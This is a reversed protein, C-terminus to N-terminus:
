FGLKALVRAVLGPSPRPMAHAPATEFDDHFVADPTLEFDFSDSAADAGTVQDSGVATPDPITAKPTAVSRWTGAKADWQRKESRNPTDSPDLSSWDGKDGLLAKELPQHEDTWLSDISIGPVTASPDPIWDSESPSTPLNQPEKGAM